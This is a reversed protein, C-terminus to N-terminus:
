IVGKGWYIAEDFVALCRNCLIKTWLGLLVPLQFCKIHCSNQPSSNCYWSTDTHAPTSWSSCQLCNLSYASFKNDFNLSSTIVRQTQGPKHIHTSCIFYDQGTLFCVLSISVTGKEWDILLKHDKVPQVPAIFSNHRMRIPLSQLVFTFHYSHLVREGRIHLVMLSKQDAKFAM